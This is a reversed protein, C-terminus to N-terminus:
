AAPLARRQHEEVVVASSRAKLVTADLPDAWQQLM